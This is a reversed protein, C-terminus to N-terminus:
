TLLDANVFLYSSIYSAPFNNGLRPDLPAAPARAWGQGQSPPVGNSICWEIVNFLLLIFLLLVLLLLLLLLM